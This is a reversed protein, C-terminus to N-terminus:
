RRTLGYLIAAPSKFCPISGVITVRLHDLPVQSHLMLDGVRCRNMEAIDTHLPVTLVHGNVQILDRLVRLTVVNRAAAPAVRTRGELVPRLNELRCVQPGSRIM